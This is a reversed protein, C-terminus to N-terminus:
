TQFATNYVFITCGKFDVNHIITSTSINLTYLLLLKISLAGDQGVDHSTM